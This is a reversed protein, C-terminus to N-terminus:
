GVMSRGAQCPPRHTGPIGAAGTSEAAEMLPQRFPPAAIAALRRARERLPVNRLEAVGYETVVYDAESRSTTTVGGELQAVIRSVAGSRATAPLVIVSRGGRSALSGRVFDVQGGVAGIYRGEAVEANVQGTLDVQLASNLAVLAPIRSLVSPAHTHSAPRLQLTSDQGLADYLRRTGFAAAAVSLGPDSPKRQNTVASSRHLDLVKDTFLGSHIGLHSRGALRGLVADPIVGIGVQLCAGDGILESARAAVERAVRSPPPSPVEILPESVHVVADLEALAFTSSGHTYPMQDNVQGIRVRARRAAQGIYDEVIGVSHRGNVSEASLHLFAVDPRLDGDLLDPLRAFQCPIVECAGADVLAGTRGIGGYSVLGLHRDCAPAFTDSFVAGLLVRCGSLASRQDILARTLTMPEATGQPVVILGPASILRTLDIV